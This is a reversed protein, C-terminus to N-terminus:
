KAELEIIRTKLDKVEKILMSIMAEISVNDDDLMIESKNSVESVDLKQIPSSSKITPNAIKIEDFTNRNSLMKAKVPKNIVNYGFAGNFINWGNMDIPMYYQVMKVDGNVRFSDYFDNGFTYYFSLMKDPAAISATRLYKKFNAPQHFVTPTNMFNIGGSIFSEGLVNYLDQQAVLIYPTMSLSSDDALEQSSGIAYYSASGAIGTTIGKYKGAAMKNSNFMGLLAGTESDYAYLSGKKIAMKMREYIDTVEFTEHTIRTLSGDDHKMGMGTSDIYANSSYVTNGAEQYPYLLSGEFACAEAVRLTLGPGMAGEHGFLVCVFGTISSTFTVSVRKAQSSVNGTEISNIRQVGVMAGDKLQTLYNYNLGPINGSVWGGVTYTKGAQVEIEPMLVGFSQLGLEFQPTVTLWKYGGFTEIVKQAQWAGWFKFGEKLAGNPCLQPQGTQQIKFLFEKNNQEFETKSTFMSDSSDKTYFDQSFTRKLAEPTTTEKVTNIEETLARVGNDVYFNTAVSQGSVRIDDSDILVRGFSNIDFTRKGNGDTVTLNKADIWNGKIIGAKMYDATFIGTVLNGVGLSSFYEEFDDSKKTTAVEQTSFATRKGHSNKACARFYWTEGPKVPYFFSSTQGEHILDFTTPNFNADKSAYIEYSYYVKDEYTWSLDIGYFGLATATLIPPEPLSDPFDGINGDAGPKGPPGPPGPKGEEGGGVGLNTARPEGLEISDYRDTMLNYVVRIAKAKTKLNYRTDIVTVIDCLEVTDPTISGETTKSLPIFNLKYSIKPYDCKNSIFYKEAERQLKVADVPNKEDFRDSFDIARIYPHSYLNINPSDVYKNPATVIIDEGQANKTRAYAYIRTILDTTDEDISIDTLNKSYVIEVGNDHGRRELVHINTNDRLVEAGTGFTDIISGEKGMICELANALSIQYNQANIIDSYGKYGRSFQSARFIQNLCYECSQTKIDIKEIFDNVLDYSIHRAMVEMRNNMMKRTAYIRFRQSLFKDNAKCEIINGEIIDQQLKSGIIYTFEVKFDGNREEIVKAREINDVYGILTDGNKNYLSIPSNITRDEM